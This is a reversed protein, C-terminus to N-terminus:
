SLSCNITSNYEFYLKDVLGPERGPDPEAFSSNMRFPGSM